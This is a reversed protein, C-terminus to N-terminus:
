NEARTEQMCHADKERRVGNRPQAPKTGHTSHQSRQAPKKGARHGDALAICRFGQKCVPREEVKEGVATCFQEPMLSLFSNQEVRHCHM